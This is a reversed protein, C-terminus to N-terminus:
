AAAGASGTTNRPRGRSSTPMTSALSRTTGDPRLRLGLDKIKREIVEPRGVLVPRALKEDVAVQAARLVRDDEGEAYVIRQTAQDAAAQFVPQMVTGSTYVYRELSASLGEPRGAAPDRRRQKM